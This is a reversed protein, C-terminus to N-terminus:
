RVSIFNEVKAVGRLSSVIREADSRETWSRVKGRLTVTGEHVDVAISSADSEAAERLAKEIEEHIACSSLKARVAIHNIMGRVGVLGAIALEADRRERGTSVNGELKLFGDNVSVTVAESPVGASWRLVGAATQALEADTRVHEPCLHVKLQKVVARVGPVRQAALEAHRKELYTPVEGSLTVIGEQATVAISGPLHGLEKRLEGVVNFALDRDSKM